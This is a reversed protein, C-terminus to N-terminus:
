QFNTLDKVTSADLRRLVEALLTVADDFDSRAIVSTNAHTYRAPVVMCIVPVGNASKQIYAADESGGPLLDTQLSIHKSAAADRLLKVLKANPVVSADFVFIAPGKGIREGGEDPNTRPYDAAIGGEVAIAVDPEIEHVATSTGRMGLEEQVTGAFYLTNPTKAGSQQLLKLAEIEILLGVRDDWAKAAYRENALITFPSAPAIADGIQIGMAEANAKSTAGVDLFINDPNTAWKEGDASSLHADQAGSVAPLTGKSTIVTWRQGLLNAGVWGGLEQIKLFGDPTISRVLSGVEDLHADIMVRPGASAGPVRAIVSGLGDTSVIAGADRMQKEFLTRVPGESGSPGNATTFEEMLKVVPDPQQASGAASLGAIMTALLFIRARAM